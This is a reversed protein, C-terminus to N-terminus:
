VNKCDELFLKTFNPNDRLINYMGMAIIDVQQETMKIQQLKSISHVAEHVLTSLKLDDKLNQDIRIQSKGLCFTGLFELECQSIDFYHGLVKLRSPLQM